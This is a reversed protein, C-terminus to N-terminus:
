SAWSACRGIVRRWYFQQGDLPHGESSQSPATVACFDLSKLAADRHSATVRVTVRSGCVPTVDCVGKPTVTVRTAVKPSPFFSTGEFSFTRMAGMGSRRAPVLPANLEQENRRAAM